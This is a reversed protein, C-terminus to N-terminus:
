GGRNITSRNGIWVYDGIFIPKAMPRYEMTDVDTVYHFNTDFLQCEHSIVANNGISIRNYARIRVLSCVLVDNGFTISGLADIFAGRLINTKGTFTISGLIHLYTKESFHAFDRADEGIFVKHWKNNLVDDGVIIKAGKEVKAFAHPFFIIPLKIAQRFPLYRFNFWITYCPRTYVIFRYVRILRKQIKSFITM